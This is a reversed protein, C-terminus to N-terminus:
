HDSHPNKWIRPLFIVSLFNLFLFVIAMMSITVPSLSSIRRKPLQYLSRNELESNKQNYLNFLFGTLKRDVKGLSCWARSAMECIEVSRIMKIRVRAKIVIETM